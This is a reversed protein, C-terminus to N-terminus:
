SRTLSEKFAAFIFPALSLQRKIRWPQRLLRYLWELGLRQVLKPARKQAGAVFDFAGGVGMAVKVNLSSLNRKIWREQKGHGYAVFLLDIPRKVAESALNVANVTATDGAPSGDGMFTGAVHLKPYKKRLATAAVESSHLGEPGELLFMQGDRRAAEACLEVFLDTGSVREKLPTGWIRSAWVMGVGDPIALAAGNLIGRFEADKRALVMMEPNPTVIVAQRGDGTAQRRFLEKVRDLAEGMTVNDIRVGLVDVVPERSSAVSQKALYDGAVCIGLLVWTFELGYHAHFINAFVLAIFGSLIGGIKINWVSDHRITRLLRTLFFIVVTILVLNAVFGLLGLEGLWSLFISHSYGAPAGPQLVQKFYPEFNGAGVGLLLNHKLMEWAAGFYQLRGVLSGWREVSLVSFLTGVLAVVAVAEGVWRLLKRSNIRDRLGLYAFTAVGAALGLAASRSMAMLFYIASPILLVAMALRRRDVAKWSLFWSVGLLLFIGVFSAGTSVDIFTSSPRLYARGVLEHLTQVCVSRITERNCDVPLTKAAAFWQDFPLTPDLGWFYRAFQWIGLLAVVAAGIGWAWVLRDLVREEKISWVILYFLGVMLLHCVMVQLSQFPNFSFPISLAEALIVLALFPFLFTPNFTLKRRLLIVVGTIPLIILSLKLSFDLAPIFVNFREFITSFVLLALLWYGNTLLKSLWYGTAM